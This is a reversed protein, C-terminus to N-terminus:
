KNGGYMRDRLQCLEIYKCGFGCTGEPTSGVCYSYKGYHECSLCEPVSGCVSSHPTIIRTKSICRVVAYNCLFFKCVDVNKM